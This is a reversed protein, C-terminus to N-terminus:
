LQAVMNPIYADDRKYGDRPGVFEADLRLDAIKDVSFLKWGLDTGTDGDFQYARLVPKDKSSRGVAHPEAIRPLGDYTFTVRRRKAIATALENIM